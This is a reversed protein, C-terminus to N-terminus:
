HLPAGEGVPDAPPSRLADVTINLIVADGSSAILQAPIELTAAHFMSHSAGIRDAIDKRLKVQIADVRWETDDIFLKAIEGIVRGDSSLVVRGHLNDDSQRM